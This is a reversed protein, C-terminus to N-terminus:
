VLEMSLILKTLKAKSILVDVRGLSLGPISKAYGTATVLINISISKKLCDVVNSIRDITETYSTGVDRNSWRDRIYGKRNGWLNGNSFRKNGRHWNQFSRFNSSSTSFMKSGM